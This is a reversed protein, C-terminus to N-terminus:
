KKEEVAEGLVRMLRRADFPKFLFGVPPLALQFSASEGSDCSVILSPYPEGRHRIEEVVIGGSTPKANWAIIVIDFRIRKYYNIFDDSDDFTAVAFGLDDLVKSFHALYEPDEDLVACSMPTTGLVRVIRTATGICM